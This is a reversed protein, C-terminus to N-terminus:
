SLNFDALNIGKELLYRRSNPLAEGIFNLLNATSFADVNELEAVQFFHEKKGAGGSAILPVGLRSSIEGITDLDFGFGTGDREISNLMIEGIDLAQVEKLYQFLDVNVETTGNRIYISSTEAKYDVSAVIAQAGYVEAINEILGTNTNLGTNIVIKDAGANFYYRAREMSDIGGGIAVPIFVNSLVIEINKKFEEFDTREDEVNLIILEDIFKSVYGFNYNDFLWKSDGIFQKRFNRSLCFKGQKYLLTFILRKKTM